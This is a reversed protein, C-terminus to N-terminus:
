VKESLPACVCAHCSASPMQYLSFTLSAMKELTFEALVRRRGNLGMNQKDDATMRCLKVLAQGLVGADNAKILFGSVGEDIMERVAGVDTGIVPRGAAMAELLVFPFGENFSPLVTFDTAAALAPIDSRFGIFRVYDGLGLETVQTRLQSEIPGEGAFLFLRGKLAERNQDLAKLLISHGKVPHFRAPVLVASSMAEDSVGEIRCLKPFAEAADPEVGNYVVHIRDKLFGYRSVLEAQMTKSLAIVPFEARIVAWSLFKEVSRPRAIGELIHVIMVLRKVSSLMAGCVVHPLTPFTGLSLHLVDLNQSTFFCRVKFTLKLYYAWLRVSQLLSRGSVTKGADSSASPAASPNKGSAAPVPSRAADPTVRVPLGEETLLCVRVGLSEAKLIFKERDDGPSCFLYVTVEYVERDVRELLSEVYRGNGGLGKGYLFYGLKKKPLIM